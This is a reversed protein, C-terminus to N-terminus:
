LDSSMARSFSYQYSIKEDKVGFTDHGAIQTGRDKSAQWKIIYGNAFKSQAIMSFDHNPHNNLFSTIYERIAKKGQVAAKPHILFAQNNYLSMLEEIRSNNLLNIYREPLSVQPQPPNYQYDRVLDWFEPM